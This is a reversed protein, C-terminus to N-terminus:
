RAGKADEDYFQPGFNHRDIFKMARNLAHEEYAKNLMMSWNVEDLDKVDRLVGFCESLYHSRQFLTQVPLAIITTKKEGKWVAIDARCQEATPAHHIDQGMVFTTAFGLVFLMLSHKM